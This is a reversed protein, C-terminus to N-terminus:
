TKQQPIAFVRNVSCTMESVVQYTVTSHFIPDYGLRLLPQHATTRHAFTFHAGGESAQRATRRMASREAVLFFAPEDIPGSGGEALLFLRSVPM